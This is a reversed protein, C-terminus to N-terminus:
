RCLEIEVRVEVSLEPGTLQGARCTKHLKKLAIRAKKPYRCRAKAYKAVSPTSDYVQRLEQRKIRPDSLMAIRLLCAM